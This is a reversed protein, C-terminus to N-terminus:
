PNKNNNRRNNNNNNSNRNNQPKRNNNNRSNQPQRNTQSRGSGGLSRSYRDDYNSVERRFDSLEDYEPSERLPSNTQNSPRANDSRIGREKASNTLGKKATGIDEAAQTAKFKKIAKDIDEGISLRNEVMEELQKSSLRPKSINELAEGMFKRGGLALGALGTGGAILAAKLPSFSKKEEVDSDEIEQPNYFNKKASRLLLPVATAAAAMTGYTGLNRLYKNSAFSLAEEPMHGLEKLKKLGQMANLSAMAEDAIVPAQTAAVLAAPAYSYESEPDLALTGAGAAMALSLPNRGMSNLNRFLSGRLLDSTNYAKAHGLEHALDLVDATDKNLRILSGSRRVKKIFDSPSIKRGAADEYGGADIAKLLQDRDPALTSKDGALETYSHDPIDYSSIVPVSSYLKNGLMNQGLADQISSTIKGSYGEPIEALSNSTTLGYNAMSALPFASAAAAAMLPAKTKDEKKESFFPM